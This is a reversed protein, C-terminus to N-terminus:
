GFYETAEKKSTDKEWGDKMMSLYTLIKPKFEAWASNAEKIFDADTKMDASLAAISGKRRVKMLNKFLKFVEEKDKESFQSSEYINTIHADGQIIQEFTEIYPEIREIIKKRIARLLFTQSEIGEIEFENNIEEYSPLSFKGRLTDYKKLIEKDMKYSESIRKM